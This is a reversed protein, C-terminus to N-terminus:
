AILVKWTDKGAIGDVTLKNKEQFDLVAKETEEGFKGDSSIKYGKKILLEQLKKVNDNNDGKRVCISIIIDGTPKLSTKDDINLTEIPQIHWDELVTKGNGKTLPKFLGYKTLIKQNITAEVKDIEKIKSTDTDLALHYEHWSRGPRAVTNKGGTWQGNILKGGVAMYLIIQRETPRYGSNVNGKIGLDKCMYAFRGIFIPDILSLDVNSNCTIYKKIEELDKIYPYKTPNLKSKLM